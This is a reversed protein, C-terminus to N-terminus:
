VASCCELEQNINYSRNAIFGRRNLIEEALLMYAEAGRSRPDYQFISQGFSPAEALRINRPITTKATKSPFHKELELRVQQSLSIRSDFMTMVILEIDLSVNLASKVKDIAKMFSALGELAYYECQIPMIIKNAAALANLTLIGMSPPCDIMIFNYMNLIKSISKKLISERALESALEIEAGALNNNSCIIDLNDINTQNICKEITNDRVLIDYVSPKNLKNKDFGIGSTVNAQPDLDILLIEQGLRAMAASLNIATTTKGVGGKQNAVAIIEAPM